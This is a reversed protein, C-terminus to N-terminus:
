KDTRMKWNWIYQEKIPKKFPGLYMVPEMFEFGNKRIMKQRVVFGKILVLTDGRNALLDAKVTDIFQTVTVPEGFKDITMLYNQGKAKSTQACCGASILLLIIIKMM